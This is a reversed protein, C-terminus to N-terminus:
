IDPSNFRNKFAVDAELYRRIQNFAECCSLLQYAKFADSMDNLLILKVLFSYVFKSFGKGSFELGYSLNSGKEEMKCPFFNQTLFLSM